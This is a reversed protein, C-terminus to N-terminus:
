RQLHGLFMLIRSVELGAYADSDMAIQWCAVVGEDFQAPVEFTEESFIHFELAALKLLVEAARLNPDFRCGSCATIEKCGRDCIVVDEYTSM